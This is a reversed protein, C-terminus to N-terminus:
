MRKYEKIKVEIKIIEGCIPCIIENSKILSNNSRNENLEDVLVNMEKKKKDNSNAIENIKLELNNITKGDYIFYLDKIDKKVKIGFKKCADKFKDKKNCQVLITTNQYNFKINSM